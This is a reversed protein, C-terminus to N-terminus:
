TNKETIIKLHLYGGRKSAQCAKMETKSLIDGLSKAPVSHAAGTVPDGNIDIRPLIIEKCLFAM